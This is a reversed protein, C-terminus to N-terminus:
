TLLMCLHSNLTLFTHWGNQNQAPPKSNILHEHNNWNHYIKMLSTSLESHSLRSPTCSLLGYWSLDFLVMTLWRMGEAKDWCEHHYWFEFNVNHSLIALHDNVVFDSSADLLVLVLELVFLMWLMVLVWRGRWSRTDGRTETAPSPCFPCFPLHMSNPFMQDYKSDTAPHAAFIECFQHWTAYGWLCSSHYQICSVMLLEKTLQEATKYIEVNTLIIISTAVFDVVKGMLEGEQNAMWLGFDLDVRFTWGGEQWKEDFELRLELFGFSREGSM